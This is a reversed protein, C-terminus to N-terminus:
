SQRAHFRSRSESYSLAGGMSSYGANSYKRVRGDAEPTCECTHFWVSHWENAFIPRTILPIDPRASVSSVKRYMYMSCDYFMGDCTNPSTLVQQTTHDRSHRFLGRVQRNLWRPFRQEADRSQVDPAIPM